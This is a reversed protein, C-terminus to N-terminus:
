ENIAHIQNLLTKYMGVAIAFVPDIQSGLFKYNTLIVNNVLHSKHDQIYEMIRSYYAAGTGGTILIQKIDLLGEYKKNIYDILEDCVKECEEELLSAINVTATNGDKEYTIEGNTHPDDIIAPISFQHINSRGYENQLRDAVRKHVTGMALDPNSEAEDVMKITTLKFLGVTKYGGDIVLVPLKELVKSNEDEYGEDDSAAGLLACVAQSLAMTHGRQPITFKLNYFNDATEFAVEHYGTLKNEVTPWVNGVADNPLAVGIIINFRSLEAENHKVTEEDTGPRIDLIPQQKRKKSNESYLVLAVGIATMMNIETETMSFREFSDTMTQKVMQLERMQRELMLKRAEEGVLYKKGQIYHSLLFGKKREGVMAKKDIFETVDCVNCPISFMIGNIVVKTADYGPDVAIALNYDPQYTAM